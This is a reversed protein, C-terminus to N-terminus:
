GCLHCCYCPAVAVAPVLSPAAAPPPSPAAAVSCPYTALPDASGTLSWPPPQRQADGIARLPPQQRHKKTLPLVPPLILACHHMPWCIHAEHVPLIRGM